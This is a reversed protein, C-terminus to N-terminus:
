PRKGGEKQKASLPGKGGPASLPGNKGGRASDDGAQSFDKRGKAEKEKQKRKFEEYFKRDLEGRKPKKGVKLVKSVTLKLKGLWNTAEINTVEAFCELCVQEGKFIYLERFERGCKVCFGGHGSKFEQAHCFGCVFRGGEYYGHATSRGCSDCTRTGVGFPLKHAISTEDAGSSDPHEGKSEDAPHPARYHYPDREDVHLEKEEGHREKGADQAQAKEAELRGMKVDMFCYACHLQNDLMQLEHAPLLMGCRWCRQTGEEGVDM